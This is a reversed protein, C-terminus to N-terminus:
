VMDTFPALFTLPCKDLIWWKPFYNGINSLLKWYQYIIESMLLDMFTKAIDPFWKSKGISIFEWYRSFCENECTWTGRMKCVVGKCEGCQEGWTHCAHWTFCLRVPVKCGARSTCAFYQKAQVIKQMCFAQTAQGSLRSLAKISISNDQALGNM